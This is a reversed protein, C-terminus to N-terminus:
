AAARKAATGGPQLHGRRRAIAVLCGAVALVVFLTAATAEVGYAGGSLWEPGSLQGQLLGKVPHGAVPVPFVADLMFNWAFHMGIVLWLRRTVLYAAAFMLGAAATAGVALITIGANPLHALAFVVASLLLANRSGLSREINRFLVGRFLLEEFLAVLVLETLPKLMVGPGNSGTVQYAGALYLIGITAGFAAAGLLLGAGLELGARPSSLETLARKEVKRVYLWYGALCLAAALLQPWHGRMSKEVLQRALIMTLAVPAVVALIGVLIRVLSFRFLGADAPTSTVVPMATTTRM